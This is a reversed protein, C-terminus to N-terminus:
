QLTLNKLLIEKTRDLSSNSSSLSYVVKFVFAKFQIKKLNSQKLDLWIQEKTYCRTVNRDCYTLVTNIMQTMIHDWIVEADRKISILYKKLIRCRRPSHESDSVGAFEKSSWWQFQKEELFKEFIIVDYMRLRSSVYNFNVDATILDYFYSLKSINFLHNLWLTDLRQM